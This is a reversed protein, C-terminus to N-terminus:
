TRDPVGHLGLDRASGRGIRRAHLAALFPGAGPRVASHEIQSDPLADTSRTRQGRLPELAARMDQRSFGGPVGATLMCKLWSDCTADGGVGGTESFM